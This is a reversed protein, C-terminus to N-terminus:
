IIDVSGVGTEIAIDARNAATAYDASQYLGNDVKPFRAAVNIGALGSKIRIKAAVGEPIRVKVSAAGADIKASTVGANAPLTLETSSAGTDIDVDTVKLDSLDIVTASAGSDIKLSLPVDKNLNIDWDLGEPMWFDPRAKLRVEIRNGALTSKYDVGSGFVGNVIEAPSAGSRINLRGAGHDIKVYGSLAGELPISVQQGEGKRNRFFAGFLIMVGFALIILPWFYEFINGKLLGQQQLLLLAALVILIIGWFISGRRM